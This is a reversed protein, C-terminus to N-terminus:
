LGREFITKDGQKILLVNEWKPAVIKVENEAELGQHAASSSPKPMFAKLANIEDTTAPRGDVLYSSEVRTQSKYFIIKLYFTSEDKLSQYFFRNFILKGKPAQAEFDPNSGEGERRNNVINEYSCGLMANEYVSIKQVRGFFPNGTKNMKPETATTITYGFQGAKLNASVIEIQKSINTKEM